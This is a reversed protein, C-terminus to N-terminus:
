ANKASTSESTNAYFRKVASVGLGGLFDLLLRRFQTGSKRRAERRLRHVPKGHLKENEAAALSTRQNSVNRTFASMM